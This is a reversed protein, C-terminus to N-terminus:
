RSTAATPRTSCATPRTPSTATAGTSSPSRGGRRPRPRPRRHPQHRHDHGVPQHRRRAHRVHRRRLGFGSLETAPMRRSARAAHRRCRRRAVRPSRRAPSRPRARASSSSGRPDVRRALRDRVSPPLAEDGLRSRLGATARRRAQGAADQPVVGAGRQDGQAPLAPLEGRDIDRTTIEATALEDTPSRAARHRRLRPPPHGDLTGAGARTSCSSRAAAPRRTTRTPRRRATWASTARRDGRRAGYPESAVVYRTRPWASTSRRAAAACRSCCRPRPRRRRQAGIAVSGEFAAVTARFAEDLTSARRRAPPSVLTPIVKADTTIEAAIRLGDAAKCTPTTTSTATSRPSRRVPAGTAPRGGRSNLPHANAESIIGVSAWRTHGLSPSRPARRGCARSCCSTAPSRPACPGRTTAWSASRPRRRTSSASTATRRHARRRSRFLPDGARDALLAACEPADLDLGHDRVLLHLGASDRGRVELRDLASLAVQVSTYAEVAAPAPAPGALDAVARATRLRDRPRGM